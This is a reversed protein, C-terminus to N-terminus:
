NFLYTSVPIDFCYTFRQKQKLTTPQQQKKNQKQKKSPPPPPPPAITIIKLSNVTGAPQNNFEVPM